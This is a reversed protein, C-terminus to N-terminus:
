EIDVLRKARALLLLGVLNLLTGWALPYWWTYYTKVFEGFVGARVMEVTHPIPVWLLVERYGSPIFSLMFFAGSLPILIYTIVPVLREVVDSYLAMGSLTLALGMSLWALSFWGAYLIMPDSPLHVQGMGFLIVYVIIFAVTTGAFELINRSLYIHLIRVNRHHLLGINAQLATLSMSIAHRLLLLCVYGTMVFPGVRIGHEYEPKIASWLVLVGICFLLPEGVLWLFGIGERGYRTVIERMMLAGIIRAHNSLSKFLNM